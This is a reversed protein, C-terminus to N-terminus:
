DGCTVELTYKIYQFDIFSYFCISNIIKGNQYNSNYKKSKWKQNQNKTKELKIRNKSIENKINEMKIRNKSFDNNIKELKIRNKSFWKKNNRKSKGNQPGRIKEM